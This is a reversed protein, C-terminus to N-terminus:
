EYGVPLLEALKSELKNNEKSLSLEWNERQVEEPHKNLLKTTRLFSKRSKLRFNPTTQQHLPHRLDTEAKTRKWDAAVERHINPSAIGALQYIKPLPTSKLRGTVLHCSENQITDIQKTQVSRSWV